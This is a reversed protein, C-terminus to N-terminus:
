PRLRPRPRETAGPRNADPQGADPQGADPQDAGPGDASPANPRLQPRTQLRCNEPLRQYYERYSAEAERLAAESKALDARAARLETRATAAAKQQRQAEEAQRNLRTRLEALQATVQATEKKLLEEQARLKAACDGEITSVAVYHAVAWTGGLLAALIVWRSWNSRMAALRTGRSRKPEGGANGPSTGAPDDPSGERPGAPPPDDSM